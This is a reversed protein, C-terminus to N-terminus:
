VHARGIQFSQAVGLGLTGLGGGVAFRNDGTFVPNSLLGAQVLDAQAIGLTQYVAQLRRNNLLAIQAATKVTLDQDLLREIAEEVQRDEEAGARWYLSDVGRQKLETRVEEFAVRPSTSACGGAILSLAVLLIGIMITTRSSKPM